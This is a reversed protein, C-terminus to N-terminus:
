TSIPVSELSPSLTLTAGEVDMDTITIGINTNDAVGLRVNNNTMYLALETSYESWLMHRVGNYVVIRRLDTPVIYPFLTSRVTSHVGDAGVTLSGNVSVGNEFRAM